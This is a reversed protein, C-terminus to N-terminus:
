QPKAPKSATSRARRSRPASTLAEPAAQPEAAQADPRLPSDIYDAFLAFPWAVLALVGFGGFLIVAVDRVANRSSPDMAIVPWMLHAFLTLAGLGLAIGIARIIRAIIKRAPM